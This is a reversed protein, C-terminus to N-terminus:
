RVVDGQDFEAPIWDLERDQPGWLVVEGEARAKEYLAKIAPSSQWSEQAQAAVAAVALTVAVLHVARKHM